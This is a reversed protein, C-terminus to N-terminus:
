LAAKLSGTLAADGDEGALIFLHLGTIGAVDWM